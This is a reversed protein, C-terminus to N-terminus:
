SVWIGRIVGEVLAHYLMRSIAEMCFLFLYPFFPDGQRLGRESTFSDFLMTNCKVVYNILRACEMIKSVWLVSFGMKLM